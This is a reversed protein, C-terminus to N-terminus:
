GRLVKYLLEAFADPHSSYGGHDGPFVVVDTGLREALAVGARHAVQGGSADGVAM